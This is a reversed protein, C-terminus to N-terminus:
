NALPILKRCPMTLSDLSGIVFLSIVMFTVTIIYHETKEKTSFFHLWSTPIDIVPSYILLSIFFIAIRFDWTKIDSNLIEERLAGLWKNRPYSLYFLKIQSLRKETPRKSESM